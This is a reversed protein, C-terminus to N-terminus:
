VDFNPTRIKDYIRDYLIKYCNPAYRLLYFSVRNKPSLRYGRHRMNKIDQAVTKLEERNSGSYRLAKYYSFLANLVNRETLEDLNKCDNKARILKAIELRDEAKKLSPTRVCSSTDSTVYNYKCVDVFVSKSTKSFVQFNVLMDESIKFDPCFRIDEFLERAYIKNWCSGVFLRGGLLCHLADEKDQVFIHGTNGIPKLTGNNIRNYSCHAIPVGYEHVLQLLLEYMDPELTDDSDVFSLYSGNSAEIGRNRAASVGQNDQHIVRIRSDENVFRDLVGASGDTSGDDIFIIELDSYTQKQISDLCTKLYKKTNYVPIIVSIM